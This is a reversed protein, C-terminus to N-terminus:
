RIEYVITVNTKIEQDGIPLTPAATQGVAVADSAQNKLYMPMGSGQENFSVIRVLDVGLQNALKRAEEKADKIALERAERAVAKDDEFGFSPGNIDSAGNQGLIGLITEVKDLDKVAISITHVVEYGRITPSGPKPCNLAMCSVQNYSYQPYSSYNETKINKEDVGADKLAKTLADVKTSVTSQATKVSPSENRVTFSFKATDPARNIEGTGSVTITNTANLGSGIFRVEKMKAVTAALLFLGLLIAIGVIIRIFITQNKEIFPQMAIAYCM